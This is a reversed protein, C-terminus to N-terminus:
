GQVEGTCCVNNPALLMDPGFWIYQMNNRSFGKSYQVQKQHQRERDWYHYYNLIIHPSSAFRLQCLTRELGEHKAPFTLVEQQLYTRICEPLYLLEPTFLIALATDSVNKKTIATELIAAAVKNLRYQRVETVAANVISSAANQQRQDGHIGAADQILMCPERPDTSRHPTAAGKNANAHWQFKAFQKLVQM